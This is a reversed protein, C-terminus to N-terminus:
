AAGAALHAESMNMYDKNLPGVAKLIDEGISASIDVKGAIKMILGEFPLAANSLACQINWMVRIAHSPFELPILELLAYLFYGRELSIPDISSVLNLIPAVVRHIFHVETPVSSLHFHPEVETQETGLTAAVEGFKPIPGEAWPYLSETVEPTVTIEWIPSPTVLIPEGRFM